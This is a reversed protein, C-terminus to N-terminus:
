FTRVPHVMMGMGLPAVTFTVSVMTPPVVPFAGAGGAYAGALDGRDQANNISGDPMVPLGAIAVSLAAFRKARTTIAM